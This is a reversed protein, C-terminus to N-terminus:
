LLECPGTHDTRMQDRGRKMKSQIRDINSKINGTDGPRQRSEPVNCQKEEVAVAKREEEGEYSMESIMKESFM